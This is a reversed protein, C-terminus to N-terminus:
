WSMRTMRYGRGLWQLETLSANALMFPWQNCLPVNLLRCLLAQLSGAHGVLM